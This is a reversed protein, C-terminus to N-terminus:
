HAAVRRGVRRLWALLDNAIRRFEAMEGSGLDLAQLANSLETVSRAITELARQRQEPEVQAPPDDMPLISDIESAYSPAASEPIDPPDELQFGPRYFGTCQLRLWRLPPVDGNIDPMRRIAIELIDREYGPYMSAFRFHGFPLVGYEARLEDSYRRAIDRWDRVTRPAVGFSDSLYEFVDEETLPMGYEHLYATMTSAIDGARWADRSLDASLQRVENLLHEPFLKDITANM